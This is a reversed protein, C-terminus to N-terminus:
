DANFHRWCLNRISGHLLKENYGKPQVRDLLYFFMEAQSKTLPVLLTEGDTRLPPASM